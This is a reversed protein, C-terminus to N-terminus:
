LEKWELGNSAFRKVGRATTITKSAAGDITGSNLVAITITNTSASDNKVVIWVDTLDRPHPLHVTFAGGTPDALVCDWPRAAYTSTVQATFTLQFSGADDTVLKRRIAAELYATQPEKHKGVVALSARRM